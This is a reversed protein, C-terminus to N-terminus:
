VPTKGAQLHNHDHSDTSYCTLLNKVAAQGGKPMAVKFSRKRGKKVKQTVPDKPSAEFGIQPKKNSSGDDGDKKNDDALNDIFFVRFSPSGPGIEGGEDDDDEDRGEETETGVDERTAVKDRTKEDTNNTAKPSGEKSLDGNTAKDVNEKWHKPTLSDDTSSGGAKGANDELDSQSNDDEDSGDVLLIKKSPTGGRLSVGHTRRRIDEIRRRLLPRLRAPIVEGEADLRSGGCGM